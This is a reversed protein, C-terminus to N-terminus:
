RASDDGQVISPFVGTVTAPFPTDQRICYQGPVTYAPSLVTVADGTVLGTILQSQQGTLQSSVNGIILDKMPVLHSFDVGIKLNQAQAVRVNVEPVKKVKGQVSPEGVDLALTQLDCIYGLGVNVNSAPSPLTFIGDLPMVFPEIQVGDALGTVMKGGLHEAGIFTSKPVGLYGLGSDVSWADAIGNKLIRDAMREIYTVRAM